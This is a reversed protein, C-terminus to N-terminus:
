LCCSSSLVRCVLHTSSGTLTELETVDRKFHDGRSKWGWTTWYRSQLSRAVLWCSLYVLAQTRLLVLSIYTNTPATSRARGSRSFTSSRTVSAWFQERTSILSQNGATHNM